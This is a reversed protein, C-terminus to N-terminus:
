SVLMVACSDCTNDQFIFICFYTFFMPPWNSKIVNITRRMLACVQVKENPLLQMESSVPEFSFQDNLPHPKVYVLKLTNSFSSLLTLSHNM